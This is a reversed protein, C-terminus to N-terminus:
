KISKCLTTGYNSMHGMLYLSEVRQVLDLPYHTEGDLRLKKLSIPVRIENDLLWKLAKSHQCRVPFSPWLEQLKPLGVMLNAMIKVDRELKTVALKSGHFDFSRLETLELMM